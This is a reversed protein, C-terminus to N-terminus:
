SSHDAIIKWGGAEHHFVVSTPGSATHGDPYSLTYRGIYLAYGRGLPRYDLREITLVGRKAPDDFSYRTQYRAKMAPKGRVLGEGAVFSTEPADSYVELFRDVQGANWGTISQAMAADIATAESAQAAVLAGIMWLM